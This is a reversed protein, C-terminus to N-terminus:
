VLLAVIEAITLKIRSNEGLIGRLGRELLALRRYFPTRDLPAAGSESAAKEFEGCGPGQHVTGGPYTMRWSTGHLRCTMPRNEYVRCRGQACLPCWARFPETSGSHAAKLDLVMRANEGATKRAEPGLAYFGERLYLIEALTHHHFWTMCCNDDCGACAFGARAAAEAYAEDMAAYLNRIENEIGSLESLRPLANFDM